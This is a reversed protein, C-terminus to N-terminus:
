ADTAATDVPASKAAATMGANSMVVASTTVTNRHDLRRGSRTPSGYLQTAVRRATMRAIGGIPAGIMMRPPMRPPNKVGVSAAPM